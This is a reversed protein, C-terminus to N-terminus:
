RTMEDSLGLRTGWRVSPWRPIQDHCPLHQVGLFPRCRITAARTKTTSSLASIRANTLKDEALIGVEHKDRFGLVATRSDDEGTLVARVQDYHVKQHRPDLSEVGGALDFTLPRVSGRSALACRREGAFRRWRV